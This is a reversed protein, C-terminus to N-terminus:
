SVYFFDVYNCILKSLTLVRPFFSDNYTKKKLFAYFYIQAELQISNHTIFTLICIKSLLGPCDINNNLRDYIYILLINSIKSRKVECPRICISHEVLSM